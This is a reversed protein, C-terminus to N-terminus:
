ALEGGSAWKCITARMADIDSARLKDYVCQMGVSAARARYSNSCAGTWGVVLLRSALDKGEVRDVSARAAQLLESAVDTGREDGIHEDLVICVRTAPNTLLQELPQVARAHHLLAQASEFEYVGDAEVATHMHHRVLVRNLKVDDCIWLATLM